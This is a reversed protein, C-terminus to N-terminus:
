GGADKVGVLAESSNEELVQSPFKNDDLHFLRKRLWLAVYVLCLLVPVETLPGVVTALAEQSDIGFTAIAVAMALEFNNSSATLAQVVSYEYNFGLRHCSFMVVAFVITFYLILPVAVRLINGIETVIKNGQLAFMVVITYLLGLLALPSVVPVFRHDYWVPGFTKKLGFRLIMRSLFGAALPIGLFILVSRTVLWIDVNLLSAKGVIVTYFYALPSYLFVQFVSNLAVLIACYEPDGRALDNWILVMAICRAVGVIIVGARYGPLDPLTAWALATMLLPGIVWNAIISVAFQKWIDRHRIITPLEEYRVKALVPYMMVLLGVAIPASVDVLKASDLVTRVSPVFNGLLVGFVMCVFILPTLLRDLWSLRSSPNSM